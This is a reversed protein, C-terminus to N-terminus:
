LLSFPHCPPSHCLFPLSDVRMVPSTCAPGNGTQCPVAAQSGSQASGSLIGFFYLVRCTEPLVHTLQQTMQM